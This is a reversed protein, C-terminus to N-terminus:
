YFAGLLLKRRTERWAYWCLMALSFMAALPTDTSASHAFGVIGAASATMLAGDLHFGPRLRWLFLYVGVVLLSADFASPLRAAWDRVGFVWFAGMAQWYYLPPKELWPAGGLTPTIWDRRALMERAVQAYRPEDAGVLGFQGLGYFFLFGCFGLLLVVERAFTSTAGPKANLEAEHSRM